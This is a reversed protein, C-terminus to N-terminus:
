GLGRSNAQEALDAFLLDVSPLTALRGIDQALAASRQAGIEPEVLAKFKHELRRQQVELDREPVGPDFRGTCPPQGDVELTVETLMDASQDIWQVDVREIMSRVLESRVREDSYSAIGATDLGALVFAVTARVSFKAELGTQPNSIACVRQMRRSARVKVARVRASSGGAAALAMRTAEIAGHTGYCAAHYKFLNDILHYGRPASAMAAEVDLKSSHTAAFGQECELADGRSGFGRAALRAATLGNRAALGAHLPKCMTGFMSKLGSTSTAAIGIATATTNADLGALRACAAAAGISGLTGTAHFGHDYHAPNVLRAVRILTEYGAVFAEIFQRGTVVRGQAAALLGPVLTVTPHGLMLGHVDDYDLAHSAAGNILAAQLRSVREKRGVLSAQASGGEELAEAVLIEVLPDHRAAITVAFWDLLCQRAVHVVDAPLASFHVSAAYQALQGTIGLDQRETVANM